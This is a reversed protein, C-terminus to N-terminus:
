VAIQLTEPVKLLVVVESLEAVLQQMEEQLIEKTTAMITETTIVQTSDMPILTTTDTGDIGAMAGLHTTHIIIDAMGHTM